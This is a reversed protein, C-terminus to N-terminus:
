SLFLHDLTICNNVMSLHESRALGFTTILVFQLSHTKNRMKSYQFASIKNMFNDANDHSIAYKGVTFKM